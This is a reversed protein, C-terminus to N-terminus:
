AIHHRGTNRMDDHVNHHDDDLGELRIIEMVATYDGRTDGAATILEYDTITTPTPTLISAHLDLLARQVENVRRWDVRPFDVNGRGYTAEYHTVVVSLPVDKWHVPGFVKGMTIIRHSINTCRETFSINDTDHLAIAYDHWLSTAEEYAVKLQAKRKRRM